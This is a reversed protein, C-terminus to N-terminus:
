CFQCFYNSDIQQKLWIRELFERHTNLLEIKCHKRQQGKWHTTETSTFRPLSTFNATEQHMACANSDMSNSDYFNKVFTSQVFLSCQICFNTSTDSSKSEFGEFISNSIGSTILALDAFNNGVYRSPTLLLFTWNRQFSLFAKALTLSFSITCSRVFSELSKVVRLGTTTSSELQSAARPSGFFVDRASQSRLCYAGELQDASVYHCKFGDLHLMVIPHSSRRRSIRFCVLVSFQTFLILHRALFQRSLKNSTKLAFHM